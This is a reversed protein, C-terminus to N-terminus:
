YRSLDLGSVKQTLGTIDSTLKSYDEICAQAAKTILDVGNDFGGLGPPITAIIEAQPVLRHPIRYHVNCRSWTDVDDGICENLIILAKNILHNLIADDTLFRVKDSTSQFDVEPPIMIKTCTEETSVSLVDSFSAESLEHILTTYQEHLFDIVQSLVENPEMKGKHILVLETGYPIGFKNQYDFKFKEMTGLVANEDAVPKDPDLLFLDKPGYFGQVKRRLTYDDNVVQLGYDLLKPNMNWRFRVLCPIARPHSYGTELTPKLLACLSTNYELSMIKENYFFIEDVMDRLEQSAVMDLTWCESDDELVYVFPKLHTRSYLSTPQPEVGKLPVTPDTDSGCIAFYVKRTPKELLLDMTDPTTMITTMSLYHGIQDHPFRTTTELVTHKDIGDHVRSIGLTERLFSYDEKDLKQQFCITPIFNLAVRRVGNLFSAPQAYDKTKLHCISM